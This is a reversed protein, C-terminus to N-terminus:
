DAIGRLRRSQEISAAADCVSPGSELEVPAASRTLTIITKEHWYLGKFQISNNNNVLLLQIYPVKSTPFRLFVFTEIHFRYRCLISKLFHNLALLFLSFVTVLALGIIISM